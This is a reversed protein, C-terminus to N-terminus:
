LFICTAKRKSSYEKYDLEKTGVKKRIMEELTDDNKVGLLANEIIDSDVGKNKLEFWIIDPINCAISFSYKALIIPIADM